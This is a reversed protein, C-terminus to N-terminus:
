QILKGSFATDLISSQISHIKSVVQNHNQVLNKLAPLFLNMNQYFEEFKDVLIEQEELPPILIKLTGQKLKSFQNRTTQKM